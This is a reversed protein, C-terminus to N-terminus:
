ETHFELDMFRADHANRRREGTRQKPRVSMVNEDKIKRSIVDNGALISWFPTNQPHKQVDGPVVSIDRYIPGLIRVDLLPITNPLHRATM